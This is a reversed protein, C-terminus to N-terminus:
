YPIDIPCVGTQKTKQNIRDVVVGEDTHLDLEVQVAQSRTQSMASVVASFIASAIQSQNLVETRGNIHGVIEAGNEGAVFATGHSPSGGNAYQQINHWSGNSFVGGNERRLLSGLSDFIGSANIQRSISNFLNDISWKASSTDATVKITPNKQQIGRQLESSISYGKEYMKDVIQQQVDTNLNNFERLFSDKDTQGLKAWKSAQEPTIDEVAKTENALEKVLEDYMQQNTNKYNELRIKWNLTERALTTDSSEQQLKGTEIYTNTYREIEKEIEQMNGTMVSEQLNSYKEITLVNETYSQTAEEEALRAEETKKRINNLAKEKQKAVITYYFSSAGNVKDLAEKYEIEAQKEISKAREHAKSQEIMQSYLRTQEQLSDIYAQRNAELIYEAEKAKITEKIKAIYEEYNGIINDTLSYEIGYANSLEGLIYKARSEYGDKVKGNGDTIKELEEILKSHIGTMTLNANLDEQIANKKAELSNLYDNTAKTTDQVSVIMKESETQYSNIASILMAVAGACAGIEAGMAGFMSGGILAGSVIGGLGSVVTQLSNGLNWGENSVSRMASSMGNMSLILGGTGVLTMKFKDMVTLSKSWMNISDGVSSTLGKFGGAMDDRLLSILSKTPSLLSKTIKILGSDGFITVLKKGANFLKVAGAVLGLGVLIKGQTSLGKFSNWMNKLTKQIGQYEFYTEGTLPNIKKTFGLWEMIKDRIETAKMRVKDMGNDYGKIADLLRQDIGGSVGGGSGNDKNENINHIQDFGLVQRKLEKVSGTANDASDALDDYLGEQTAIGNNYDKLEIGFMTAIAKCVEKIVMLLANAYPLIQAFGGIFLSTLAVKSEVLQQKFVKMQNAPSDITNAFDGMAVKAQRLTAIYRLIEKEAQSMEKVSKDIGLEGLIPQMSQQTVDVGYARLPKTQGAYVGARLAEGTTSESKNYLSALDYTLKTMTESMIASYIDPIGVNEGMSQFLGQYKLTETQNTGFAENMRNQFNLAERGLRSFTKIGDKELNKFVVNFLNMQETKDVALDLWNLFTSTAKKTGYFLGTLTLAKGLKNVSNTAKDTSDKVKDIEQKVKPVSQKTKTEIRGLELYTNTLVNEINTLSRVLKDVDSKAQQASAKIQMELTQNENM